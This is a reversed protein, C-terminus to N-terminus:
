GKRDILKGCARNLARLQAEGGHVEVLVKLPIATEEKQNGDIIIRLGDSPSPEGSSVLEVVADHTKHTWKAFAQKYTSEKESEQFEQHSPAEEESQRESGEERKQDKKLPTWNQKISQSSDNVKM